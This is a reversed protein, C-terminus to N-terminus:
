SYVGCLFAGAVPERGDFGPLTLLYVVHNRALREADGKWVWPGCALGPILILPAGSKGLREVRLAGAEFTGPASFAPTLISLACMAGAFIATKM